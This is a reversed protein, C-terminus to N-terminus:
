RSATTRPRTEDSGLIVDISHGDRVQEIMQRLRGDAEGDESWQRQVAVVFRSADQIRWQAGQVADVADALMGVNLSVSGHLAVHSDLFPGVPKLIRATAVADHGRATARAFVVKMAERADLPRSITVAQSSRAMPSPGAQAIAAGPTLMALLALLALAWSRPEPSEPRRPRDERAADMGAAKPDQESM